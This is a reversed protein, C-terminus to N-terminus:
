DLYSSPVKGYREKFQASFYQPDNFGVQYSTAKVSTAQGSELLKRAEFLRIEKIYEKPTLGVIKKIKRQLQRRSSFMKEGLFDMNFRSDSLHELITKELRELWEQDAQSIINEKVEIEPIPKEEAAPLAIITETVVKTNEDDELTTTQFSKRETYNKLLNAIRIVLEEEEFPKLLYDDVGIRLASLRDQLNARATLMVIPLHRFYDRSRLVKVLNYGDMVPMMIDSLILDPLKKKKLIMESLIDLAIQGNEALITNHYNSLISDLYDRLSYNDEVILVTTTHNTTKPVKLPSPLVETKKTEEMKIQALESEPKLGIVEKRPIQVYFISGQSFESEVWMKGKMLNIYEKSVALGIGTGGETPANALKSQYFRDFIHPLDKEHIGRGTDKVSFQIFNELDKATFIVRGGAQTFKLANSLLNNIIIEIKSSDIEFCSEKPIDYEFIFNIKEREAHSEFNSIIRRIFQFLLKPSEELEFKGSEMKSLDLISGVLKLLDNGNQQATKLLTLQKNSIKDDKLMSSIPGLILTLPTRLEHSVNAFFRSKISDLDKLRIAEIKELQLQQNLQWRRKQTIWTISVIAGILLAYILKMWNSWYWQPHIVIPLELPKENWNGNSDSALVKFVYNGPPVNTFNAQSVGTSTTTWDRDYNELFYRYRVQNQNDYYNASFQFSFYNEEPELEIKDIYQISPKTPFPKGNVLFSSLKVEQTKDNDNLKSPTIHTFGLPQGLIIDGNSLQEFGYDLATTALGDERGFLRFHETKQNYKVLGRMTLIWTNENNDVFLGNVKDDPLGNNQDIIPMEQNVPKQPNIAQIGAASTGAWIKGKETEAISLVRWGQLGGDFRYPYHVEKNEKQNLYFVGHVLSTAWFNNEHDVIVKWIESSVGKPLNIGFKKKVVSGSNLGWFEGTIFSIWIKGSNDEIIQAYKQKSANINKLEPLPFSVITNSSTNYQFLLISDVTKVLFWTRNKSDSFIDLIKDRWDDPIPLSLTKTYNYHDKQKEFVFIKYDNFTSVYLENKSISYSFQKKQVLADKIEKSMKPQFFLTGSSKSVSLGLTQDRVWIRNQHDLYLGYVDNSLISFSGGNEKTLYQIDETEMNLIGIGKQNTAFWIETPSKQLVTTVNIPNTQFTAEKTTPNFKILGLNESGVWIIGRDDIALSVAFAPQNFNELPYNIKSGTNKDFHYIGNHTAIWLKNQHHPDQIIHRVSNTMFGNEPTIDEEAMSYRTFTESSPEFRNLGGGFTGVWVEQNLDTFVTTAANYSMSNTDTSDNSYAFFTEEKSDFKILGIGNCAIWYVGDQGEKIGMLVAGPLSNPIKKNVKYNKFQHGDYRSLGDHTAFWMISQSDMIADHVWSDALGDEMTLQQFLIDSSSTPSLLNQTQSFLSFTSWFTLLLLLTYKSYRTLNPKRM